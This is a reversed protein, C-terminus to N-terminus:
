RLRYLYLFKSVDTFFPFFITLSELFWGGGELIFCHSRFFSVILNSFSVILDLFWHHGPKKGPPGAAFHRGKLDSMM